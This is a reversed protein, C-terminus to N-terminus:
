NLDVKQYGLKNLAPEIISVPDIRKFAAVDIKEIVSSDVKANYDKKYLTFVLANNALADFLMDQFTTFIDSALMAYYHESIPVDKVITAKTYYQHPLTDLGLFFNPTYGRTARSTRALEILEQQANKLLDMTKPSQDLNLRTLDLQYLQIPKNRPLFAYTHNYLQSDVPDKFTFRIANALSPFNPIIDPREIEVDVMVLVNTREYAYQKTKDIYEYANNYVHTEVAVTRGSQAYVQSADSLLKLRLLEIQEPYILMYKTIFNTHLVELNQLDRLRWADPYYLDILNLHINNYGAWILAQIVLYDQLLGGSAMTTYVLPETKDSFQKFIDYLLAINFAIRKALPICNCTTLATPIAVEKGKVTRKEEFDALKEFFGSTLMRTLIETFQVTSKPSSSVLISPLKQRNANIYELIRNELSNRFTDLGEPSRNKPAAIKSLLQESLPKIFNILAETNITPLQNILVPKSPIQQKQELRKQLTRLSTTLNNLTVDLEMAYTDSYLLLLAATIKSVYKM